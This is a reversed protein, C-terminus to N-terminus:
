KNTTNYNRTTKNKKSSIGALVLFVGCLTFSECLGMRDSADNVNALFRPIHLLVFWGGLMIGSLLAAWYRTQPILIGLGGAFLCIGCFYAWFIHFPIYAPIFNNIFDAFKFHAYGCAIFFVALLLTGTILLGKNNKFRTITNIEEKGYAAAILLSGGFLAMSKYANLWDNMFHPLCRLISLLFILAAILLAAQAAYKKFLITIASIILIIGSVYGLAPNFDLSAPWAPPRGLIFDKSIICVIGLALIGIAFIIRGTKILKDMTYIYYIGDIRTRYWASLNGDPDETVIFDDNPM